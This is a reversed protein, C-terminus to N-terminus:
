LEVTLGGQPSAPPTDAATWSGHTRAFRAMQPPVGHAILLAYGAGEHKSGPGTLEGVHIVKGIDHSAAGYLVAGRDFAM